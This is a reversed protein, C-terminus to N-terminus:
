RKKPSPKKPWVMKANFSYSSTLGTPRLMFKCVRCYLFLGDDGMGARMMSKCEPCDLSALRLKIGSRVKRLVFRRAIIGLDIWGVPQKFSFWRLFRHTKYQPFAM